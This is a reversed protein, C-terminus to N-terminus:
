CSRSIKYSQFVHNSEDVRPFLDLFSKLTNILIQPKQPAKIGLAMLVHYEVM